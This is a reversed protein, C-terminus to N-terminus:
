KERIIRALVRHNDLGADKEYLLLCEGDVGAALACNAVFVGKREESTDVRASEPHLFKPAGAPDCHNLLIASRVGSKGSEDKERWGFDMAVVVHRGNWVVAPQFFATQGKGHAYSGKLVECPATPPNRSEFTDSSGLEKDLRICTMTPTAGWGGIWHDIALAWGAPTAAVGLRDKPWSNELVVPIGLVKGSSVDVLTAAGRPRGSSGPTETKYTVLCQKGDSAITPMARSCLNRWWYEQDGLWKGTKPKLSDIKEESEAAIEIGGSDLCKGEPTVRAGWIGYVPYRRADMWVVFHMGGAFAVAPRCQNAPRASVLFGDPDLVKGEETVRAAYIDYDKGGRFDEWVVLFNKGDFAVAPYGQISKAKCVPFGQPDLSRGTRAEIRACYIDAAKGLPQRTGDSWVVLYVKKGFAAAPNRQLFKPENCKPAVATAPTSSFPGLDEALLVGTVMLGLLGSLPGVLWRWSIKRALVKM